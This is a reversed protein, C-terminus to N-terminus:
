LIKQLWSQLVGTVFLSLVILGIFNTIGVVLSLKTLFGIKSKNKRIKGKINLSRQLDEENKTNKTNIIRM